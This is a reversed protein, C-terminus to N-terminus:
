ARYHDLFHEIRGTVDEPKVYGAVIFQINDALDRKEAETIVGDRVARSVANVHSSIEECIRGVKEIAEADRGNCAKELLLAEADSAMVAVSQPALKAEATEAIRDIIGNWVSKPLFWPKKIRPLEFPM